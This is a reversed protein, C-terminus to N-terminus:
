TEKTVNKQTNDKKLLLFVIITLIHVQYQCILLVIETLAM